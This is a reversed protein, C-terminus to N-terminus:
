FLMEQISEVRLMKTKMYFVIEYFDRVLLNLSITLLFNV